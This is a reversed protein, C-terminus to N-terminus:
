SSPLLVFRVLGILGSCKGHLLKSQNNLTDYQVGVVTATTGVTDPLRPYPPDESRADRGYNRHSLVDLWVVHRELHTHYDGVRWQESRFSWDHRPALM